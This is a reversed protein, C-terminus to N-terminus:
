RLRHRPGDDPQRLCDPVHTSRRMQAEEVLNRIAIVQQRLDAMIQDCHPSAARIQEKTIAHALDTLRESVEIQWGM